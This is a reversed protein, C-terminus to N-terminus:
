SIKIFCKIAKRLIRHCPTCKKRMAFTKVYGTKFSLNKYYQTYQKIADDSQSIHNIYQDELFIQKVFRTVKYLIIDRRLLLQWESHDRM